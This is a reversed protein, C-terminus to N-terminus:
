FRTVLEDGNVTHLAQSPPAETESIISNRRSYNIGENVIGEIASFRRIVNPLTYKNKDKKISCCKLKKIKNDLPELSRLWIPLFQFNRLKFPLIKPFKIQLFYLIIILILLIILPIGFLALGIWMPILALGFIFLPGIFYITIVYCYLFWRYKFVIEGLGKALRKPFRLFPIPLWFLVGLSNFLTYVFALQMSKKLSSVPQTFATLIGTVTTGINSGLTMVFVRQLSVIGVGCLPVLTATIINSSQVIITLLFAIIFLIIETAFGFPKPFSANVAIRVAKAIPGVILLSLVKVIGFLCCILVIISLIIWFLGTGGDGITELMPMCWYTCKKLCIQTENNIFTNNLFSLTENNSKLCCRLAVQTIDSGNALANVADMDLVIFLDCLPNLIFAMFNAKSIADINDFPMLNALKTSIIYLFHTLIEIPLLISTTLLNFMDNLTAGSFARKFENPDGALTLAILSNTVCTGINSGMIIPIASQVDPIIGAGVM